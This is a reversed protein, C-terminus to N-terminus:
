KIDSLPPGMEQVDERCSPSSSTLLYNIKPGQESTKPVSLLSRSFYPLIVHITSSTTMDRAEACYVCACTRVPVRQIQSGFVIPFDRAQWSWPYCFRNLFSFSFIKRKRNETRDTLASPAGTDREWSGM